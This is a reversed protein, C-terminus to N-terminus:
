PYYRTRLRNGDVYGRTTGTTGGTPPPFYATEWVSGDDCYYRTSGTGIGPECENSQVFEHKTVRARCM